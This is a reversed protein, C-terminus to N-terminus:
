TGLTRRLRAVFRPGLFRRVAERSVARFKMRSIAPPEVTEVEVITLGPSQGLADLTVSTAESFRVYRSGLSAALSPLDPIAVGMGSSVGFRSIQQRRILGYGGDRIVIVM